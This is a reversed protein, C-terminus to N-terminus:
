KMVEEIKYLHFEKVACKTTSDKYSTWGNFTVVCSFVIAPSYSVLLGDGFDGDIMDNFFLSAGLENNLICKIDHATLSYYSFDLKEQSRCCCNLM